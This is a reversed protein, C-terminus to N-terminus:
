LSPSVGNAECAWWDVRDFLFWSMEDMVNVCCCHSSLSAESKDTATQFCGRFRRILSRNLECCGRTNTMWCLHAKFPWAGTVRLMLGSIELSFTAQRWVFWINFVPRKEQSIQKLYKREIHKVSEELPKLTPFHYRITSLDLQLWNAATQIKERWFYWNPKVRSVGETHTRHWNQKSLAIKINGM